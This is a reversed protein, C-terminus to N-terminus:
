SDSNFSEETVLAEDYGPFSSYYEDCTDRASFPVPSPPQSANLPYPLTMHATPLPSPPQSANYGQASYPPTMHATPHPSPPQSANHLM